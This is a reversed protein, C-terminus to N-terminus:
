KMMRGEELVRQWKDELHKENDMLCKKCYFQIGVTKKINWMFGVNENWVFFIGRTKKEGCDDCVADGVSDTERDLIKERFSKKRGPSEQSVGDEHRLRNDSDVVLGNWVMAYFRKGHGDDVMLRKGNTKEM